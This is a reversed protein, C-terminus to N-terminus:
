ATQGAAIVENIEKEGYNVHSNMNDLLSTMRGRLNAWEAKYQDAAPANWSANIVSDISGNNQNSANLIEEHLNRLQSIMARAPEPVVLVKTDAM